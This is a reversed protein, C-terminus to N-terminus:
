LVSGDTGPDPNTRVIRAPNGVVVANDPVDRIVVAGAGVTAWRGITTRPTITANTGVFVGDHIVVEGSISVGHAVFVSNGITSEHSILAGIHISSNDGIQVDTQVIVDNQIYNGSGVEVFRLDISPHILNTLKAGLKVLTKTVEYRATTTGTILNVFRANPDREIIEPVHENGGLVPIGLFSTNWKARDNDIFGAVEFTPDSARQDQVQRITEPNKAGILYVSM